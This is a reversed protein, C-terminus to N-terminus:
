EVAELSADDLTRDVLAALRTVAEDSAPLHPSRVRGAPADRARMAAKLGPIGDDGTVAENLDVLTANLERAAGREGSAHRDYVASALEPVVNAMALVGGDAGADLGHAYVSGSGVLLDFEDDTSRAIRGLSVLDGSSDKMGAVNEHMALDAVTEPELRVGTYKPVSYLYVPISSADALDRFYTALTEQDHQFYHPTVVLAADAGAEAARETQRRTADFGAHGTGALVPVTAEEVVTEVVRAREDASLLPAESNSGCPAIFDVGRREVWQVLERLARSDITGDTEFPTVLPLGTGHM